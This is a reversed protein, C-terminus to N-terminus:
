LQWHTTYRIRLQLEVGPFQSYKILSFIFVILNRSICFISIRNKFRVWEFQERSKKDIHPSSLVTFIKKLTPLGTNGYFNPNIVMGRRVKVSSGGIPLYPQPPKVGGLRDLTYLSLQSDGELPLTPVGKLPYLERKGRLGQSASGGSPTRPEAQEVRLKRKGRVRVGEPPILPYPNPNHSSFSLHSGGKALSVPFSADKGTVRVKERSRSDLGKHLWKDKEQARRVGGYMQRYSWDVINQLQNIGMKLHLKNHSKLTIYITYM